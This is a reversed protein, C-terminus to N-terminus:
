STVPEIGTLDVMRREHICPRLIGRRLTALRRLPPRRGKKGQSRAEARYVGDEDESREEM